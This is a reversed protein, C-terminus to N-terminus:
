MTMFKVVLVMGGKVVSFYTCDVFITYFKSNVGSLPGSCSYWSAYGRPLAQSWTVLEDCLNFSSATDELDTQQVSKETTLSPTDEHLHHTKIDCNM